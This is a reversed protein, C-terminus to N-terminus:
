LLRALAGWARRLRALSLDVRAGGPGALRLRSGVLRGLRLFPVDCAAALAQLPELHPPALACVVRTGGEGFLDVADGPGPLSVEAGRGLILCCEALAVALGGASVDHAFVALRRRVAQRVCAITRASADLDPRPFGPALAGWLARAYLSGGLGPAASGLLVLLDGEAVRAPAAVEPVRGVMAVVPTPLIPGCPGENYFSVNGGVVPVGLARCAAAIGEVAQVFTWFVEPDEPRGFNLCDTVALPEAGACALNAAAEMVTAAGGGYPDVACWRGCGDVTLALGEPALEPLRLVAAGRGPRVVTRVQVMHDYQEYIPAASTVEPAALLALLAEELRVTRVRPPAPVAAPTPVVHREPAATLLRVPLDAVTVGGTQARFWGDATVHGVVEAELGWRRYIAALSPADAPRAALLMREQSESLLVEAAALNPERLPVRDLDLVVGTGARAAMEGAACALGGAGMDQLGLVRRTALAQRTAEILCKGSFPDGIQVASRDRVEAAADLVGSAFAAGGIGDRGTPAGAYLLVAGPPAARGRVIGVTRVLGLCAVNVLPAEAYAPDTALEGGVTPVGVSNGYAAIGGVVGRALRRACADTLPGFRLADLLAVPRAGMALVDRIIGGVGTAAGNFPDVASPHNHSEMKWVLAWGGGLAVVGANEGPGQLVGDGGAPLRRLVQRSHRYACHESWMVALCRAEIPNPARGLAVRAVAEDLPALGYRAAAEALVPAETRSAAVM